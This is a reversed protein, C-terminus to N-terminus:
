FRMSLKAAYTAEQDGSRHHNAELDNFVRVSLPALSLNQRRLRFPGRAM